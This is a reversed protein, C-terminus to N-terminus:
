SLDVSTSLSCDTLPYQSENFARISIEERPKEEEPNVTPSMNYLNELEINRKSLAEV